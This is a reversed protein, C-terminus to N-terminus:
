NRHNAMELFFFISSNSDFFAMM